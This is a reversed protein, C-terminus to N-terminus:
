TLSVPLVASNADRPLWYVVNADLGCDETVLDAMQIPMRQDVLHPQQGKVYVDTVRPRLRVLPWELFIFMWAAGAEM